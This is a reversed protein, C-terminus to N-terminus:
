FIEWLFLGRRWVALRLNAAALGTIFKPVIQPFFLWPIRLTESQFLLECLPVFACLNAKCAPLRSALGQRGCLSSNKVVSSKNTAPLRAPALCLRRKINFKVNKFGFYAANVPFVLLLFRYFFLAPPSKIFL